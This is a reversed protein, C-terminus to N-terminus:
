RRSQELVEDVDVVLFNTRRRPWTWDREIDFALVVVEAREEVIQVRAVEVPRDLRLDGPATASLSLTAAAANAQAGVGDLVLQDADVGHEVGGVYRAPEDRPDDIVLHQVLHVVH